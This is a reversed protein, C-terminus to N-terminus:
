LLALFKDSDMSKSALNSVREQDLDAGKVMIALFQLAKPADIAIDDIIEAVPSLGQEFSAASCLEKSVAIAFLQSVLKADDEKSEVASSVFKDVLLHHHRSPLSSFYVEAEELNRVSFFEKLDENVKKLAMEETMEISAEQLEEESHSSESEAAPSTTEVPVSHPQLVLRKTQPPPETVTKDSLLTLFFTSSWDKDSAEAGQSSLMSFTNSSSNTRSIAERKNEAGKKGAFASSPGFTLPQAKSIGGRSM